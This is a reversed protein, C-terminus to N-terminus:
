RRGRILASGLKTQKETIMHNVVKARCQQLTQPKAERRDRVLFLHQTGYSDRILRSVRGTM